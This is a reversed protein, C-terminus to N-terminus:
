VGHVLKICKATHLLIVHGAAIFCSLHLCERMGTDGWGVQPICACAGKGEFSWGHYSCQLRGEEDIRGESLPALRHPCQDLFCRWKSERRDYWLVVPQGLILLPHPVSKDMDQLSSILVITPGSRKVQSNM